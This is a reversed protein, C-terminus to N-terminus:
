GERKRALGDVTQGGEHKEQSGTIVLDIKMIGEPLAYLAPM